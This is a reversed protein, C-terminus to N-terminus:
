EIGENIKKVLQHIKNINNDFDHAGILIDTVGFNKLSKIKSIVEEETGYVTFDKHRSVTINNNLDQEAEELTDRVLIKVSVMKKNCGSLRNENKFFDDYMCLITSNFIEATKISFDSLGSIVIEPKNKLLPLDNCQYLFNRVFVKRQEVDLLSHTNGYIDMQDSEDSRNHVDGALINIM